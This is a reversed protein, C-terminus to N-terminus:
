YTILDFGTAYKIKKYDILKNKQFKYEFIKKNKKIDLIIISFYNTGYLGDVTTALINKSIICIGRCWTPIRKLNKKNIQYYFVKSSYNYFKKIENNLKEKSSAELPNTKVIKGDVSTFYIHNKYKKGDHILATKLHGITILEVKLTKLNVKIVSGLNRSTLFVNNKEVRIFNFHFVGTPGRRQKTIFRWDVNLLSKNRVLKLDSTITFYDEIEGNLRTIVVTDKSTLISYIKKKYFAIGHLDATLRHSIIHKLEFNEKKIVHVGSWTAAFINKKNQCLGMFGFRPLKTFNSQRKAPIDGLIKNKHIQFDKYNRLFVYSHCNIKKKYIEILAPYKNKETIKKATYGHCFSCIIKLKNM